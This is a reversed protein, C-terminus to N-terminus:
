AGVESRRARVVRPHGALDALAGVETWFLAGAGRVLHRRVLDERAPAIEMLLHGGPRLARAAQPILREIVEIGGEGGFVAQKPEWRRVEEDVSESYGVYPPNSAVLDLRGAMGAGLLPTLLDGLHFLVRDAVAHREANRRAVALAEDSLDTAHVLLSPREHALAVAIPGAGTGVDAVVAGRGGGATLGLIRLAEEVLIETEPRPILVSENVEFDLSWFEKEGVLYAVPVRSERRRLLSEFIAAKEGPVIEESHALVAARRVQLAHALLLEADLRSSAIGSAALRASADLLTRGITRM